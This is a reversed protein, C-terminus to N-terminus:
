AKEGDSRKAAPHYRVFELNDHTKKRKDPFLSADDSISCGDNGFSFGNQGQFSHFDEQRLEEHSTPIVFRDEYN